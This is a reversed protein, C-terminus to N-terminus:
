LEEEQKLKWGDEVPLLSLIEKAESYEPDYLVAEPLALSSEGEKEVMYPELYSHDGHRGRVAEATEQTLLIHKM